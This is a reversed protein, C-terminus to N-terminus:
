VPNSTAVVYVVPQAPQVAVPLGAAIVMSELPSLAYAEGIAVPKTGTTDVYFGTGRAELLMDGAAVAPIDTWVGPLCVTSVM